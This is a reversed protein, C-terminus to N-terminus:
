GKETKMTVFMIVELMSSFEQLSSKHRLREGVWKKYVCTCTSLDM